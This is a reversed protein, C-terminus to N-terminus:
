KLSIGNEPISRKRTFFDFAEEIQSYELEDSAWLSSPVKSEFSMSAYAMKKFRKGRFDADMIWDKYEPINGSLDLSDNAIESSHEKVFKLWDKNNAEMWDSMEKRLEESIISAKVTTPKVEFPIGNM